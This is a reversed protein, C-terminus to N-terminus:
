ALTDTKQINGQCSERSTSNNKLTQTVYPDTLLGWMTCAWLKDKTGSAVLVGPSLVQYQCIDGPLTAEPCVTNDRTEAEM